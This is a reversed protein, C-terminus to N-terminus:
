QNWAECIIECWNPNFQYCFMLLRPLSFDYGKLNYKCWILPDVLPKKNQKTPQTYKIIGKVQMLHTKQYDHTWNSHLVQHVHLGWSKVYEFGNKLCESQFIIDENRYVFDDEIKDLLPEIAKKRILQFGSYPRLTSHRNLLNPDNFFPEGNEMKGHWLLRESEIIGVDERLDRCLMGFSGRLPEVDAHLYVFWETTVKKMLEALCPGLTKHQVQDVIEIEQNDLEIVLNPNNIGLYLTKIPIEDFWRGVNKEFYKNIWYLPCIVDFERPIEIKKEPVIEPLTIRLEKEIRFSDLHCELFEEFREQEERALDDFFFTDRKGVNDEIYNITIRKLKM